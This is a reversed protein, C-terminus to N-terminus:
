RIRAIFNKIQRFRVDLKFFFFFVYTLSNISIPYLRIGNLRCVLNNNNNEIERMLYRLVIYLYPYMSDKIIYM